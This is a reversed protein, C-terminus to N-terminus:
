FCVSSNSEYTLLSFENSFSLVENTSRVDVLRHKMKELANKGFFANNLQSTCKRNTFCYKEDSFRMRVVTFHM